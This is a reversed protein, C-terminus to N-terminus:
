FEIWTTPNRPSVVVIKDWGDPREVSALLEQRDHDDLGLGIYDTLVLWWVPYKHKFNAIKQLKEAACHAINDVMQPVIFGSSQNDHMGGIQFYHRLPTPAQFVDIEFNPESYIKGSSREPQAKFSMLVERVKPGLKKWPMMPRSFRFTLFWSEDTAEGLSHALNEVSHWLPISTEELGRTGDGFDYNQNLRRVEVAVRGDVLFDPPTNGDPEHVISQFGMTKLLMEVVAESADMSNEGTNRKVLYSALLLTM